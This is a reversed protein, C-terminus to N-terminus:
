HQSKAVAEFQTGARAAISRRGGCTVDFHHLDAVALSMLVQTALLKRVSTVAVVRIQEHPLEL